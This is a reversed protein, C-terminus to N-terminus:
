PARNELLDIGYEVMDEIDLTDKYKEENYVGCGGDFLLGNTYPSVL